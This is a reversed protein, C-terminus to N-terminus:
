FNLKKLAPIKAKEKKKILIDGADLVTGLMCYCQTSLLYKSFSHTFLHKHLTEETDPMLCPLSFDVSNRGKYKKKKKENLRVSIYNVYVRYLNYVMTIQSVYM